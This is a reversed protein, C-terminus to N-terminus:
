PNWELAPQQLPPAIPLSTPYETAVGTNVTSLPTSSEMGQRSTETPALPADPTPADPTPELPPTAVPEMPADLPMMPASTPFDEAPLDEVVQSRIPVQSYARTSAAPAPEMMCYNLRPKFRRFEKSYSRYADPSWPGEFLRVGMYDLYTGRAFHMNAIAMNYDVVTQYYQSVANAKTQQAILVFELLEEGADYKATAAELRTREAVTRNFNAQAVAYARDMEAFQGSLTTSVAMEQNRLVARDRALSLEASRVAAHERRRGIATSYQLGLQWGQLRGGWLDSFASGNAVDRNGLLEDGFGRWRYLGILDIQALLFNKSASLEYERQRVVWRQRRLEVRRDMAMDLSEQWDFIRKAVSPEDDPRILRGDNAPVGMLRRLDRESSYVGVIGTNASGGSLANQMDAESIYYTARALAESAGDATGAELQDQVTRWSGLAAEYAATRADLSRYAFYLQWYAREVDQLLDRVAAEFDALALDTRIRAIVVGNYTGVGSNPGAIRNFAIGRGRLLPQRFEGELATNYASNFLNGPVNNRNYSTINRLFFQTGTAAQKSLQLNYNGTNSALSTAGGGVFLNNFAREDRDFTIGSGVQADFDALAAEVGLEQLAVDYVTPAAGSIVRGGISRIVDSNELTIRIVEELTLPWPEPDQPQNVALPETVNVAVDSPPTDLNAVSIQRQTPPETVPADDFKSFKKNVSHCGVVAIAFLQAVIITAFVSRPKSMM